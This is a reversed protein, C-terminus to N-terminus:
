ELHLGLLLSQRLLIENTHPHLGLLLIPLYSPPFSPLGYFTPDQPTLERHFDLFGACIESNDWGLLLFAPHSSHARVGTLCWATPNNQGAAHIPFTPKTLPLDWNSTLGPATFHGPSPFHAPCWGWRGVEDVQRELKDRSDSIQVVFCLNSLFHFSCEDCMYNTLVDLCNFFTSQWKKELWCQIQTQSVWPM